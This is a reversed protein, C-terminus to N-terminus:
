RFVLFMKVCYINRNKISDVILFVKVVMRRLMRFQTHKKYNQIFFAFQTRKIVRITQRADFLLSVGQAHISAEKHKQKKQRAKNLM